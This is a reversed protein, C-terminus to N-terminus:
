CKIKDRPMLEGCDQCIPAYYTDINEHPCEPAEGELRSLYSKINLWAKQDDNNGAKNFVLNGIRQFDKSKQNDSNYDSYQEKYKTM